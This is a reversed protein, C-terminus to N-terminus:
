ALDFVESAVRSVRDEYEVIAAVAVTLRRSCHLAVLRAFHSKIDKLDAIM